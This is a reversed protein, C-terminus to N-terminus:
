RAASMGRSPEASVTRAGFRATASTADVRPVGYDALLRDIEARRRVIVEDLSDRFAKDSRRVGMAIAFTYPVPGDNAPSLPVVRLPVPSRKAFYGALPGWVLAVDVEGKEVAKVIRSPPNPERYDGYVTYGRVNRVIGRRTLGAAPPTNSFDDGILQVGVTVERLRPDDLSRIDPASQRSVFTYTSRYYPKTTLVLEIDASTGMIIDCHGAKLTNRVFGRRQAWYYYEVKRGLERAVLRALKDEFGEHRANSYPLNNPDACVRLPRPAAPTGAGLLVICALAAGTSLMPRSLPPRMMGPTSHAALPGEPLLSVPVPQVAQLPLIGEDHPIDGRAQVFGSAM